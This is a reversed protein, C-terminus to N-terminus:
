NEDKLQIITLSGDTNAICAQGTAKLDRIEGAWNRNVIRHESTCVITVEPRTKKDEKKVCASLSIVTGIIVFLVSKFTKM